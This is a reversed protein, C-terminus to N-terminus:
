AVPAEFRQWTAIQELRSRIEEDGEYARLPGDTASCICAIALAMVADDHGDEDAPGYGVKDELAVYNRMEDYTVRDHITVDRDVVLKLLHGIAWEKRKWTTSWGLSQSLMGPMKDAWRQRWINPYDLAVLHGITAYGPGEVETAIEAVNYYQGLKALEEGFTMPDCRARWVAVQEYTRRNIVQACAFDGRTTHTPDGGVFYQGWSRDKSPHRFITLPGSPNPVFRVEAGDRVLSGRLGEFPQYCAALADMPFVNSGTALFAEEPTAPYEQAFWAEDGNALNRIAWRRWALRDDDVGLARLAREEETLSGLDYAPINIASATYEPHQWWPFFLPAYEVDGTTAAEWLDHFWNGVGNATSELVIMTRPDNPVAQRLGVMVEEPHEWWAVESGHLSHVTRSRGTRVNRATAIRISSGTELWELEKRSVYKPTYLDKYAWTSWFLHTMGLLYTSSDIEHAVVLGHSGPFVFARVFMLAETLTSIGIQRAKLVVIRVPRGEAEQQEVVDIMRRQAWNPEFPVVRASKDRIWLRRLFPMYRPM